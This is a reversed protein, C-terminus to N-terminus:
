LSLKVFQSSLHSYSYCTSGCTLRQCLSFIQALAAQTLSLELRARLSSAVGLDGGSYTYSGIEHGEHLIRRM